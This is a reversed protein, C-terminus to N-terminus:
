TPPKPQTSFRVHDLIYESPMRRLRSEGSALKREVLAVDGPFSLYFDDLRLMLDPLWWYSGEQFILTNPGAPGRARQARVESANM